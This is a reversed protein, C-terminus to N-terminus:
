VYIIEITRFFFFSVMLMNDKNFLSVTTIMTHENIDHIEHAAHIIFTYIFM